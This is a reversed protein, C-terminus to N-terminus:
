VATHGRDRGRRTAYPHQHDPHVSFYLPDLGELPGIWLWEDAV